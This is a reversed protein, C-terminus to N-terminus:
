RPYVVVSQLINQRDDM